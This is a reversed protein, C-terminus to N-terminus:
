CTGCSMAITGAPINFENIDTAAMAKPVAKNRINLILSIHLELKEDSVNLELDMIHPNKIVYRPVGFKRSANQIEVGKLAHGEGFDLIVGDLDLSHSYKAGKVFFFLSDNEYDYDVTNVDTHILDVAM